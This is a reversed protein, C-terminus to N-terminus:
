DSQRLELVAEYLNTRSAAAEVRVDSRIISNGVRTARPIAIQVLELGVLEALQGLYIDVPFLVGQLISNGVVVIARGGPRLIYHLGQMFRYSDNFYQTAYNSWGAGGYSGKEPRLGRLYALRQPLDSDPLEFILEIAERERVTQWYTGLNELELSKLDGPAGAFGLWYMQPRTNRIYHYNNLYPPSTVVLDVTGPQLHAEVSFFSDAILAVEADPRPVQAQYWEIDAVMQRLQQAIIGGVDADDIPEKGSSIRQGLSPEYSYNSFSVMKAAFALKFLDQTYQEELTHIFDWVHLVKWEVAPSYFPARTRFGTPPKSTPERDQRIAERYHQRFAAWAQRLAAPDAQHALAKERAALAAYPNIEFGIVDHGALVAEVLTTGVGAFPDLVLGPQPLHRALLDAVFEAAFGAVWPVWRHIPLEKNGGQAPDLFPPAEQPEAGTLELELQTWHGM